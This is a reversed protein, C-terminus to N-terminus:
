CGFTCKNRIKYELVQGDNTVKLEHGIGIILRKGLSAVYIQYNVVELLKFINGQLKLGAHM